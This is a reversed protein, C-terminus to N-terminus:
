IHTRLFTFGPKNTENDMLLLTTGEDYLHAYTMNPIVKIDKWVMMWDSDSSRFRFGETKSGSYMATFPQDTEDCSVAEYKDRLDSITRRVKIIKEQGVIEDVM